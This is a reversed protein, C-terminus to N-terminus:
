VVLIELKGLKSHVRMYSTLKVGMLFYIIINMIAFTALHSKEINLEDM